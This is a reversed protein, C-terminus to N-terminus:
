RLPSGNDAKRNPGKNEEDKAAQNQAESLRAQNGLRLAQARSLEANYLAQELELNKQALAARLASERRAQLVLALSLAVIAILLVLAGLRFQVRAM